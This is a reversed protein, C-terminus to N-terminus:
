RRGQGEALDFAEVCARDETPRMALEGEIVMFDGLKRGDQGTGFQVAHFIDKRNVYPVLTWQAGRKGTLQFIGHEPIPTVTYERGDAATISTNLVNTTM